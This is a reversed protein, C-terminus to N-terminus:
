HSPKAFNHAMLLVSTKDFYTAKVLAAKEKVSQFCCPRWIIEISFPSLEISCGLFNLLTM